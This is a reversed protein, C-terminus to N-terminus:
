LPTIQQFEPRLVDAGIAPFLYGLTGAYSAPFLTLAPKAAKVAVALIVLCVQSLSVLSHNRSRFPVAFRLVRLAPTSLPFQLAMTGPFIRGLPCCRYEAM